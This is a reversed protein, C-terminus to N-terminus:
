EIEEGELPEELIILLAESYSPCQEIVQNNLREGLIDFFARERISNDESLVFCELLQSLNHFEHLSLELNVKTDRLLDLTAKQEQNM